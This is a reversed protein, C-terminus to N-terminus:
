IMNLHLWPLPLPLCRTVLTQMAGHATIVGAPADAPRGLLLWLLNSEGEVQLWGDENWVVYREKGVAVRLERQDWGPLCERWYPLLKQLTRAVDLLKITGTSRPPISALGQAALLRALLDGHPLNVEIIEEPSADHRTQALAALLSVREGALEILRTVHRERDYQWLLYAVPVGGREMVQFACPRGRCHGEQIVYELDARPRIVRVGEGEALTVLTGIDDATAAHLAASDLSGPELIFREEIAAHNAGASYYLGRAGSIYVLDVDEEHLRRLTADLLASALGRGRHAPDTCVAGIYGLRLRHGRVLIDRTLRNMSSVPRGNHFITLAQQRADPHLSMPWRRMWSWYTPADPFFVARGLECVADWEEPRPTRPGEYAVQEQSM